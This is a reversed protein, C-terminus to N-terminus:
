FERGKENILMLIVQQLNVSFFFSKYRNNIFERLSINAYTLFNTENVQYIRAYHIVYSM